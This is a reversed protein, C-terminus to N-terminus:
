LYVFSLILEQKVVCFFVFAYGFFCRGKDPLEM